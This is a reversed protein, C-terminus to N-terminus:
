DNKTEAGDFSKKELEEAELNRAIKRRIVERFSIFAVALGSIILIINKISSPLGLYALIM